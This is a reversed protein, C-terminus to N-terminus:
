SALEAIHRLDEASLDFLERRVHRHLFMSQLYAEAHYFNNTDITYLLRVGSFERKLSQMRREANNSRGIKYYGDCEALYVFGPKDQEFDPLPATHVCHRCFATTYEDSQPYWRHKFILMNDPMTTVEFYEDRTYKVGCAHCPLVDANLIALEEPTVASYFAQILAVLESAAEHKALGRYTLIGWMGGNFKHFTHNEQFKFMPDYEAPEQGANIRDLIEQQRQILTQEDM